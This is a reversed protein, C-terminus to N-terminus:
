RLIYWLCAGKFVCENCVPTNGCINRCGLNEDEGCYHWIVIDLIGPNEALRLKRNSVQISIDDCFKKCFVVVIKRFLKYKRGYDGAFLTLVDNDEHLGFDSAM